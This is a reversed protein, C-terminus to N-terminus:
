SLLKPRTKEKQSQLAKARGYPGGHLGVISNKQRRQPAKRKVKAKKVPRASYNKIKAGM